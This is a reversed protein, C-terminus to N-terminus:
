ARDVLGRPVKVFDPDGLWHARDAFALKMAEAIVHLRTAEDMQKLDFHELINLIQLVHVGGSSPPPFSVIEHERYSSKIPERTQPSYKQFDEASLLGGNAKMWEATADAFPGRYFWASGNAGIQEYTQALDPQRLLEGEVLPKDGKFFVARSSPFRGLKEAVRAITGAYAADVIFGQRAIDAAPLILKKLSTKGYKGVAFEYAALAGPVASALPGTQSLQTDAKGERLFMDTTATAPATERGDIGVLSGDPRRILMFCGGGIGSNDTDVVGLTLGVAVTADVANGGNKLVALGAQTAAPHVSAVMGRRAEATTSAPTASLETM